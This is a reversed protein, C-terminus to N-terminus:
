DQPRKCEMKEKDMKSWNETAEESSGLLTVWEEPDQVQEKERSLVEKLDKCPQSRNQMRLLPSRQRASWFYSM